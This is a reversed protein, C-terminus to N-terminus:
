LRGLLWAELAAIVDEGISFHGGPLWVLEKEGPLADYLRETAERSILEDSEKGIIRVAVGALNHVVSDPGTAPGALGGEGVAAFAAAKFRGDQAVAEIGLMSGMSYSAWGLRSLDVPYREAIADIVATVEKAFQARVTPFRNADRFLAMPDAGDRDGHMPADIGACAWGHRVWGRATGAVFFDDKSSTGPHQIFVLPFPGGDQPLWLRGPVREGAVTLSFRVERAGGVEREDSTWGDAM